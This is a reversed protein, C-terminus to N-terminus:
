DKSLKGINLETLQEQAVQSHPTGSGVSQGEGTMRSAFLTTADVGCARLIEDGGPHRNIFQTLDYVEGSIITWCDSKSNHRAVEEATYTQPQQQENQSSEQNQGRDVISWVGIGIVVILLIVISSLILSTKKQIPDRKNVILIGMGEAM